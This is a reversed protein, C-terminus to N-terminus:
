APSDGQKLYAVVSFAAADDEHVFTNVRVQCHGRANATCTPCLRCGVRALEAPDFTRSIHSEVGQPTESYSVKASCVQAAQSPKAAQVLPTM